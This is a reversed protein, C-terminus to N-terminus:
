HHSWMDGKLLDSDVAISHLHSDTNYLVACLKVVLTAFYCVKIIKCKKRTVKTFVLFVYNERNNRAEQGQTNVRKNM